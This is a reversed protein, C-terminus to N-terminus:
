LVQQTLYMNCNDAFIYRSGRRLVVAAYLEWLEMYDVEVLENAGPFNLSIKSM